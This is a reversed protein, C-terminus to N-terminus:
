ASHFRKSKEGVRSSLYKKSPSVVALLSRESSALLNRSAGIRRASPCIAGSTKQRRAVNRRVQIDIRKLLSVAMVMLFIGRTAAMSKNEDWLAMRQVCAVQRCPRFLRCSACERPFLSQPAGALALRPPCPNRRLLSANRSHCRGLIESLNRIKRRLPVDSVPMNSGNRSRRFRAM